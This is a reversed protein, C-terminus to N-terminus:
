SSLILFNMVLKPSLGSLRIFFREPPSTFLTASVTISDESASKKMISSGVLWRSMSAM